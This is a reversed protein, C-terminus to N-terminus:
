EIIGIAKSLAQDNALVAQNLNLTPQLTPQEFFYNPSFNEHDM